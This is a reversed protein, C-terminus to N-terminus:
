CRHVEFLASSNAGRHAIVQRLGCGDSVDFLTDHIRAQADMSVVPLKIRFAVIEPLDSQAPAATTPASMPAATTGQSTEGSTTGQSTEGHSTYTPVAEKADSAVGPADSCTCSEKGCDCDGYHKSDVQISTAGGSGLSIPAECSASNFDTTNMVSYAGKSGTAILVVEFAQMASLTDHITHFHTPTLCSEIVRLPAQGVTVFIGARASYCM